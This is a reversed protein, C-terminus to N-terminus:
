FADLYLLIFHLVYRYQYKQPPSLVTYQVFLPTFLSGENKESFWLIM